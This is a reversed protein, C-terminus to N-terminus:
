GFKVVLDELDRDRVAQGRARVLHRQFSTTTLSGVVGSWDRVARDRADEVRYGGRNAVSPGQSSNGSAGKPLELSNRALPENVDSAGM